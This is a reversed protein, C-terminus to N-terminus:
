PQAKKQAIRSSEAALAEMDALQKRAVAADEAGPALMLYARFKDAAEAYRHRASYITGLLNEIQPYQHQVDLKEAALGDVEAVDLRRLNFNAAGNLFYAQPYQFTNLHLVRESTDALEKWDHAKAAMEALMLYPDPWRPEAKAAAEFSQHADPAHGNELQLKGLEQWAFAFEPYVRVAEQLSAIAEGPRNKKSLELGRQLARRAEKPARLTTATVTIATERAGMRHLTIVGVDPKDLSTRGTLSISESTYGPLGARLDCYRNDTNRTSTASGSAGSGASNVGPPGSPRNSATSTETADAIVDPNQVLALFFYGDNDTYGETRPNGNCVRQITAPLSLPSGDDIIVRGSVRLTQSNGTQGTQGGTNSPNASSTPFTTKPGVTIPGSSPGSSPQGFLPIVIVAAAAIGRIPRRLAM